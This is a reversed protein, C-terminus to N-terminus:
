RQKSTPLSGTEGLQHRPWVCGVTDEPRAPLAPGEGGAALLADDGDVSLATQPPRETLQSSVAALKM